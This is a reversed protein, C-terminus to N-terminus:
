QYNNFTTQGGRSGFGPQAVPHTVLLIHLRNNVRANGVREGRPRQACSKETGPRPVDKREERGVVKERKENKEGRANREERTERRMTESERRAATACMVERREGRAERRKDSTRGLM